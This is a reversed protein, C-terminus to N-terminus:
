KRKLTLGVGSPLGSCFQAFFESLWECFVFLTVSILVIRFRGHRLGSVLLFFWLFILNMKEPEQTQSNLHDFLPRLLGSKTVSHSM